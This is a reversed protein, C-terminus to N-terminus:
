AVKIYDAATKMFPKSQKHCTRILSMWIAQTQAGRLSRNGYSTKRMLVAPRIEREACNNHPEIEAKIFTYLADRHLKFRDAMTNLAPLQWRKKAFSDTHAMLLKYSREISDHHKKKKIALATARDYFRRVKRYFQAVEPNGAYKKEIWKMKRLIHIWCKQKRCEIASYSGLFDSSLIGDFKEGLIGKVVDKNRGKEITYYSYKKSSFSWLWAGSGSRRWSTEDAYVVDEKRLADKLGQYPYFFKAAGNSLMESIQGTEIHLNYQDILMQQIKPLTLGMGFKWYGVLAHLRPGYKSRPLKESDTISVNQKCNACHSWGVHYQTTIPKVADPLDIQTHSQWLSPEPLRRNCNPCHDPVIKVHRDIKTPVVRKHPAHGPKAGIKKPPENKEQRVQSLLKREPDQTARPRLQQRLFDLESKIRDNEHHLEANQKRLQEVEDELEHKEAEVYEIDLKSRRLRERLRSNQESLSVRQYYWPPGQQRQQATKGM